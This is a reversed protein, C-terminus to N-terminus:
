VTSAVVVATEGDWRMLQVGTEDVTAFTRNQVWDGLNVLQGNPRTTIGPTHTHGCCVVDVDTELRSDAWCAQKDLAEQSAEGGHIRSSHSLWQSARWGLDPGLIRMGMRGIGGRLVFNLLRQQPRMDAQDGHIAAIQQEGAMRRWEAAVLVGLEQEVFPGPRFDHNGTVWTVGVGQEVLEYLAVAFPAFAGYVAHRWGWWVDVMDGVFVWEDTEWSRLFRILDWQNPDRLGNLHADSVLTSRM